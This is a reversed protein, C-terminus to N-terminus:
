NKNLVIKEINASTFDKQMQAKNKEREENQISSDFFISEPLNKVQESMNIDFDTKLLNDLVFLVFKDRGSKSTPNKHADPYSSIKSSTVIKGEVDKLTLEFHRYNLNKPSHNLITVGKVNYIANKDFKEQIKCDTMDSEKLFKRAYPIEVNHLHKASYILQFCNEKKEITESYNSFFINEGNWDGCALGCQQYFAAEYTEDDDVFTMSMSPIRRFLDEMFPADDPIVYSGCSDNIGSESFPMDVRRALAFDSTELLADVDVKIKLGKYPILKCSYPM